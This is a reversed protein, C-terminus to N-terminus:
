GEGRSALYSVGRKYVRDYIRIEKILDDYRDDYLVEVHHGEALRVGWLDWQAVEPHLRGSLDWGILPDTSLCVYPPRWSGDVSLKGPVLGTRKISTRRSTPSWHYLTEPLLLDTM